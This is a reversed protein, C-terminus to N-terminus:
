KLLYEILQNAAKYNDFDAPLIRGYVYENYLWPDGIVFVKGKGYKAAAMIIDNDTQAIIEVDNNTRLTVLEKVYFKLNDQFISNGKMPRVVGDPFNNNKVFNINKMTFSIGFAEALKNSKIVEANTTDNTMLLLAGGNYVWKKIAQIHINQIFNPKPSDKSNDPDVIIYISADKLNNVTPPFDLNDLEAGKTKFIKGMWSFGSDKEDEWTYHFRKGDKYERNFYRDLKVKKGRGIPGVKALDYEIAAQMFLGIAMLDDNRKTEKIYYDYTGDRHPIGGLGAGSVANNLHYIGQDDKTVFEKLIGNYGEIAAQKMSQPLYGLRVGKLLSAIMMSSGSSELYNGEKNAKDTVQWWVRADKDQMSLVANSLDNYIEILKPRLPHDLPFIELIDVIGIMYWGISRSCFELSQGTKPDAWKQIRCEDYGQYMLGTKDDKSNKAMWIFQNAVDNWEDKKDTHVLYKAKFPQTMYVGDLWMQCPYMLKHWYGGEKLRPQVDLQYKLKHFAKAYKEDRYTNYLTILQRGPLINDSNFDEIVYTKISGDKDIFHDLIHKIYLLYKPDGTSEWIREFSTLVVGIEYNWNAPRKNLEDLDTTNKSKDLLNDQMLHNIYKKVVMSDPYQNMITHALKEAIELQGFTSQCHIYLSCIIFFNLIRKM